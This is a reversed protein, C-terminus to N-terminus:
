CEYFAIHESALISENALRSFSILSILISLGGRALSDSFSIRLRMSPNGFRFSCNM